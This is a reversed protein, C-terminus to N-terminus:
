SKCPHWDWHCCSLARASDSASSTQKMEWFGGDWGTDLEVGPLLLLARDAKPLKQLLLPLLDGNPNSLLILSREQRAAPSSDLSQNYSQKRDLDHQGLDWDLPLMVLTWGRGGQQLLQQGQQSKAKLVKRSWIRHWHLVNETCIHLCVPSDQMSLKSQFGCPSVM